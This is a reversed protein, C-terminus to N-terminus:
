NPRSTAVPQVELLGEDTWFGPRLGARGTFSQHQAPPGIGHAEANIPDQHMLAVEEIGAATPEERLIPPSTLAQPDLQLQSTRAMVISSENLASEDLFRQDSV